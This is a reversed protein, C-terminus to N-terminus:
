SLLRIRRLMLVSVLQYTATHHTLRCQPQKTLLLCDCTPIWNENDLIQCLHLRGPLIHGRPGRLCCRRTQRQVQAILVELVHCNDGKEQTRWARWHVEVCHCKVIIFFSHTIADGQNILPSASHAPPVLKQSDGMQVFSLPLHFGWRRHIWLRSGPIVSSDPIQPLLCFLEHASNLM